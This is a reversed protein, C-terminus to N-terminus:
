VGAGAAAGGGGRTLVLGLLTGLGEALGSAAGVNQGRRTLDLSQQNLIASVITGLDANKLQEASLGLGSLTEGIQAGQNVANTRANATINSLDSAESVRSGALAANTGGGRPGFEGIAKRATDYQDIVRGREPATAEMLATPNGGALKQFYDLIPALTQSGQSGLAEGTTGLDGASQQLQKMLGDLNFDGSTSAKPAGKEFAGGLATTAGTGALVAPLWAASAGGTFPAAALLGGGLLIKGLNM